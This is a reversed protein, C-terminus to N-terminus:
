RNQQVVAQTLVSKDILKAALHLGLQHCGNALM